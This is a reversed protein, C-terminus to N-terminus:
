SDAEVGGLLVPAQNEDPSIEYRWLMEEECAELRETVYKSSSLAKAIATDQLAKWPEGHTTLYYAREIYLNALHERLYPETLIGRQLLSIHLGLEEIAEEAHGTWLRCVERYGAALSHASFGSPHIYDESELIGDFRSRTEWRNAESKLMLVAEEFLTLSSSRDEETSQNIFELAKEPGDQAEILRSTLLKVLSSSEKQLKLCNIAEGAADYQEGSIRIESLRRYYLSQPCKISSDSEPSISNLLLEAEEPKGERQLKFTEQYIRNATGFFCYDILGTSIWAAFWAAVEWNQDTGALSKFVISLFNFLFICFTLELGLRVAHGDLALYGFFEALSSKNNKEEMIRVCASLKHKKEELAKRVPSETSL